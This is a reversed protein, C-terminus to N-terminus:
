RDDKYVTTWGDVCRQNPCRIMLKRKGPVKGKGNCTMCKVRTRRQRNPGGIMKM